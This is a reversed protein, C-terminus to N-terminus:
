HQFAEISGTFQSRLHALSINPARATRSSKPSVFSLLVLHLRAPRPLKYRAKNILHFKAASSQAPPAESTANWIPGTPRLIETQFPCNANLKRGSTPAIAADDSAVRVDLVSESARELIGHPLV